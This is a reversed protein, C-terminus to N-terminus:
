HGGLLLGDLRFRASAASLSLKSSMTEFPGEALAVDVDVDSLLRRWCSICREGSADAAQLALEAGAMRAQKGGFGREFAEGGFNAALQLSLRGRGPGIVLLRLLGLLIDGLFQRHLLCRLDICRALQDPEVFQLALCGSRSLNVLREQLTGALRAVCLIQRLATNTDDGLGLGGSVASPGLRFTIITASQDGAGQESIPRPATKAM